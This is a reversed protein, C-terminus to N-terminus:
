DKGGYYKFYAVLAEVYRCFRIVSKKQINQTKNELIENSISKIIELFEASEVLERVAANRGSQYILQIRLYALKDLTNGTIGKNLVDDYIEATMALINRIQSTTLIDKGRGTTRLASFNKEKLYKIVNEAEDVYNEQKFTIKPREM